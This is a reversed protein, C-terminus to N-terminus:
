SRTQLMEFWTPMWRLPFGGVFPNRWSAINWAKPLMLLFTGHLSGHRGLLLIRVHGEYERRGEGGAVDYIREGQCVGSGEDYSGEVQIPSKNLVSITAVKKVKRLSLTVESAALLLYPKTPRPPTKPPTTPDVTTRRKMPSTLGGPHNHIQLAIASVSM